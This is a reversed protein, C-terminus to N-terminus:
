SVKAEVPPVDPVVSVQVAGLRRLELAVKEVDGDPARVAIWLADITATRFAEVEFVPHHLRPFGFLMLLGAFVALSAFLVGLEFTIPVFAPASHPPRNGVNIPWNVGVTWLQLLYGTFAGSLGGALCIMPVRSRPLGLAEEAGHLPVPSHLDVEEHGLARMRRAADLLPGESRFQGMVTSAM